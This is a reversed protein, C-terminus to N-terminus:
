KIERGLATFVRRLLPASKRGLRSRSLFHIGLEKALSFWGYKVLWKLVQTYCLVRESWKLPSHRVSKLYELFIRWREFSFRYNQTWWAMKEQYNFGKNWLNEARYGYTEPHSRRFFLVEPIEYIRGILSLEVLLNYDSGIYTGMLPTKRLIDSRILGFILVWSPQRREIVLDGFREHPKLSDSRVKYNYIGVQKGREDICATKSHCLVISPDSDLVNICRSLFEPALVDDHAAWKFYKGSSLKFAHNHSSVAGVNIKNRYYHIRKDKAAYARCIQSTQDTSANDIIILEFDPYTQTLISDLTDEIYKEGNFVPLGISVRPIHKAEPV